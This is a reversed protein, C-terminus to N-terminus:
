KKLLGLLEGPKIQIDHLIGRLTGIPIDKGGHMSVVTRRGDTHKMVLHSTSKQRHEFFGLEHLVRILERPKLPKLKPM